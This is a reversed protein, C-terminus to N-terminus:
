ALCLHIRFIIHSPRDTGRYIEYESSNLTNRNRTNNASHVLIQSQDADLRLQWIGETDLLTCVTTHWFIKLKVSNPMQSPFSDLLNWSWPHRFGRHWTATTSLASSRLTAILIQSYNSYIASRTVKQKVHSSTNQFIKQYGQKLTREKRFFCSVLLYKSILINDTHRSPM